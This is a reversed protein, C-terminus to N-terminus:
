ELTHGILNFYKFSVPNTTSGNSYNVELRLNETTLLPKFRKRTIAGDNTYSITGTWQTTGQNDKLTLDARAGTALVAFRCHIEDIVAKTNFTDLPFTITKFSSTTTYGSFKGLEYDSGSYSALIPTGFANTIGGATSHTTAAIQFGRAPINADGSGYCFVDDDSIWTIFDEFDTVQYYAPLDGEYNFIDVVQRGDVYGLTCVDQSLNKQYFVYTVGNKVFLAGVKGKVEIRYEYNSSNGDWVFISAINKDSTNPKNGAIMLRDQNWVISNIVVDSDDTNFADDTANTGDWEKVYQGDAIWLVGSSGGVAMQHPNDTLESGGAVDTWWDADLSDGSVNYKAIDGGTSHNYSAFVNGDFLAVDEGDEGTKSPHDIAKPTSVTTSSIPYFNAGGVGYISNASVVSQLLGKILTSVNDEQTGNALASIGKGQTIEVPDTLDVNVMANLHNNNGFESYSNKWYAPAYGGQSPNKIELNFKAM